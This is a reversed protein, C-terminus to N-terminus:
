LVDDEGFIQRAIKLATDKRAPYAAIKLKLHIADGHEVVKMDGLYARQKDFRLFLNGKYDMKNELDRLIRKRDSPKIKDLSKLFIKIERKKDTKGHLLIVQNKHYGEIIEKEPSSFPLINCVATQVKKEDETGYILTRYAINHIM